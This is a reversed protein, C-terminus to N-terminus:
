KSQLFKQFKTHPVQSLVYREYFLFIKVTYIYTLSDKSGAKFQIVM